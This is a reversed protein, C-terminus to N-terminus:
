SEEKAEDVIKVGSSAGLRTAGAAIMNQADAWTHIGGAAKVGMEEPAGVVARMLAVDDVTAGGSGFGTSTKVYDADAGKALLCAMIKEFRGLYCNEIIVKLITENEHCIEAVARIDNYVLQYEGSKLLGIPIVMDLEVACAKIAFKSEAVKTQTQNAGLPFGIVASVSVGSGELEKVAQPVFVPNLCVSAFKYERAEQCLKSIQDVTAQPKLLTHDIWGAIEDKSPISFRKKEPLEHEFAKANEIIENIRKM